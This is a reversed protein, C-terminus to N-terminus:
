ISIQGHYSVVFLCVMPYVFLMTTGLLARAINAPLSDEELSNLINGQINEQFGVFGGVGCCLALGCSFLLAIRTVSAWRDKTPNELSGAIIFASHQCVFAFSLVGLGVFITETHVISKTWDFTQWSERIPACYLVLLVMLFDFTVNVRSTKALDAMDKLEGVFVFCGFNVCPLSLYRNVLLSTTQCSKM